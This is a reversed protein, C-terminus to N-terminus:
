KREFVIVRFADYMDFPPYKGRLFYRKGNLSMDERYEFRFVVSWPEFRRRYFDWTGTGNYYYFFIGKESWEILYPFNTAEYTGDVKLKIEHYPMDVGLERLQEVSDESLQWVGVVDNRSPRWRPPDPFLQSTLFYGGDWLAWCVCIWFLFVWLILLIIIRRNGASRDKAQFRDWIKV